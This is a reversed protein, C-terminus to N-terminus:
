LARVFHNGGEVMLSKISVGQKKAEDEIAWVGAIGFAPSADACLLSIVLTSSLAQKVAPDFMAKRYVANLQDCFGKMYPGEAALVQETTIIAQNQEQGDMRYITGPNYTAPLVYELTNLDRKSLDSHNFYSTVWQCFYPIRLHPPISDVLFPAWDKEPM